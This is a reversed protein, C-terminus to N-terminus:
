SFNTRHPAPFASHRRAAPRRYLGSRTGLESSVADPTSFVHGLPFSADHYSVLHDFSHNQTRWDFFDPYSVNSSEFHKEQSSKVEILRQPQVYPLPRLVVADVISFVTTTAGIGLAMIIIVVLSFGPSKRFQRLSFKVDSLVSEITPWQWAERSREEIQAINGFERRAAGEAQTRSMGDEMLEDIKEELHEQISVSIDDYRRRRSFIQKLWNM